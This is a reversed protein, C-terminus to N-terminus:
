SMIRVHYDQETIGMKAPANSVEKRIPVIVTLTVTIRVKLATGVVLKSKSAM